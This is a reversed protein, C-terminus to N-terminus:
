ISELARVIAELAPLSMGRDEGRPKRDRGQARPLLFAAATEGLVAAAAEPQREPDIARRERLRMAATSRLLLQLRGQLYGPMARASAFALQLATVDDLDGESEPERSLALEFASPGPAPWLRRLYRLILLLALGGVAILALRQLLGGTM